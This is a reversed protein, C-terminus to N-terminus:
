GVRAAADREVGPDADDKGSREGGVVCDDRGRKLSLSVDSSCECSAM